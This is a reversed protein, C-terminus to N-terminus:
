GDEKEKRKISTLLQLKPMETSLFKRITEIEEDSYLGKCNMYPMGEAKLYVKHLPKDSSPYNM